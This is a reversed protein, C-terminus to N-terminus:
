SANKVAVEKIEKGRKGLSNGINHVAALQM